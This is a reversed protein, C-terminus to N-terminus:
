RLTRNQPAVELNRTRRKAQEMRIASPFVHREATIVRVFSFSEGIHPHQIRPVVLAVTTPRKQKTSLLCQTLQCATLIERKWCPHTIRTPDCSDSHVAAAARSLEIREGVRRLLLVGGDSGIDGGEFNAEIERRGVWM